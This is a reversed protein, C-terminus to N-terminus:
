RAFSYTSTSRVTPSGQSVKEACKDRVAEWVGEAGFDIYQFSLSSADGSIGKGSSASSSAPSSSSDAATDFGMLQRARDKLLVRSQTNTADVGRARQDEARARAKEEAM